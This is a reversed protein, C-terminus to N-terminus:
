GKGGARRQVKLPRVTKFRDFPERCSTCRWHSRCAASGFKSIEETDVSGCRPCSPDPGSDAQLSGLLDDVSALLTGCPAAPPAIGYDSLKARAEDSIWDTTWPPDFRLEVAVETDVGHDALTSRIDDEIAQIAPCGIFTPTLAVRIASATVQVDRVMGLDGITVAPLEPDPVSGVLHAIRSATIM